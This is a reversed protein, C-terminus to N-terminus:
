CNGVHPTLVHVFEHQMASLGHRYRIISGDLEFHSLSSPEMALILLIILSVTVFKDNIIASRCSM